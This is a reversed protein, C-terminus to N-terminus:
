PKLKQLEGLITINITPEIINLYKKIDNETDKKTLTNYIEFGVWVLLTVLSFTLMVLIDHDLRNKRM